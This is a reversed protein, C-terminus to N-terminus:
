TEAIGRVFDVAEQVNRIVRYAAGMDHCMTGFRTQEKSQIANGTKIELELRIGVGDRKRRVIGSIDAGGKVGFFVPNSSHGIPYALGCNQKWAKV